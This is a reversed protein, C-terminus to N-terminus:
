LLQKKFIVQNALSLYQNWFPRTSTKIRASKKHQKCQYRYISTACFYKCFSFSFYEFLIKLCPFWYFNQKARLLFLIHMLFLYILYDLQLFVGAYKQMVFNSEKVHIINTTSSSFVIYTYIYIYIRPSM